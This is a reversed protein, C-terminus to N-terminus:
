KGSGTAGTRTAATLLYVNRPSLNYEGKLLSELAFGQQDMYSASKGSSQGHLGYRIGEEMVRNYDEMLM